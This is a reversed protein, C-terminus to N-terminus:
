RQEPQYFGSAWVRVADDARPRGVAFALRLADGRELLWARGDEDCYAPAPTQACAIPPVLVGDVELAVADLHTTEPETERIEIELLGDTDSMRQPRSVDLAQAAALEPRRLERLIEGRHVMGEAQRVYVHPCAACTMPDAVRETEVAGAVLQEGGLRYRVTFADPCEHYHVVFTGSGDIAVEGSNYGNSAWLEDLTPGRQGLYALAFLYPPDEDDEARQTILIERRGDHEDVDVIEVGISGIFNNRLILEMTRGAVTLTARCPEAGARDRVCGSLPIPMREDPYADPSGIGTDESTLYAADLDGDGDFDLEGHWMVNGELPPDVRQSANEVEPQAIIPGAVPEHPSDGLDENGAPSSVCAALLALTSAVLVRPVPALRALM